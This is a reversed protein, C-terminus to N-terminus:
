RTSNKFEIRYLKFVDNGINEVSHPPEPNEWNGINLEEPKINITDQKVLTLKNDNGLGYTNYLIPSSQVVWVISKGKHTHIPDLEGPRVTVELVRFDETESILKHYDSAAVLADLSDPWDWSKNKTDSNIQNAQSSNKNNIFTMLLFISLGGFLIGSLFYKTNM